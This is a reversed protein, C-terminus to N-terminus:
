KWNFHRQVFEEREDETMKDSSKVEVKASEFFPNNKILNALEDKAKTPGFILIEDNGKIADEIEKYYKAQEHREKNHMVNENKNLYYNKQQRTFDSLINKSTTQQENGGKMVQAIKNDLWVGIQKKTKM